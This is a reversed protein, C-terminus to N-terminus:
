LRTFNPVMEPGDHQEIGQRFPAFKTNKGGLKLVNQRQTIATEEEDTDAIFLLQRRRCLHLVISVIVICIACFVKEMLFYFAKFIQM